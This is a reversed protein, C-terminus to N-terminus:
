QLAQLRAESFAPSLARARLDFYVLLMGTTLVGLAAHRDLAALADGDSSYITVNVLATMGIVLSVITAIGFSYPLRQLFSNLAVLVLLMIIILPQLVASMDVLQSWAQSLTPAKAIAMAIACVNVILLIRLLIGLNRFNPLASTYANQNISAM